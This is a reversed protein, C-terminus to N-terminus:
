TYIYLYNYVINYSIQAKNSSQKVICTYLICMYLLAIRYLIYLIICMIYIIYVCRYHSKLGCVSHTTTSEIKYHFTHPNITVKSVVILMYYTNKM